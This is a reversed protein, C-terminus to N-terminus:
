QIVTKGTSLLRVSGTLDGLRTSVILSSPNLNSAADRVRGRADFNMSTQAVGDANQVSTLEADSELQVSENIGTGTVTLDAGVAQNLNFSITIQQGENIARASTDQFLQAVRNNVERLRVSRAYANYNFIGIAALIALVAIVVLMELLSFGHTQRTRRAQTM